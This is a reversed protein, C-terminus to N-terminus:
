RKSADKYHDYAIDHEKCLKDLKNIGPDGRALREALKTGPGCYQYKPLHLEFPLKDIIKNILGRGRKTTKRKKTKLRNKISKRAKM